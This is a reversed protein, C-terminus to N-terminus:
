NTLKKITKGEHWEADLLMQVSSTKGSFQTALSRLLSSIYKDLNIIYGSIDNNNTAIESFGSAMLSINDPISIHTSSLFSFLREIESSNDSFIASIDNISTTMEAYAKEITNNDDVIKYQDKNISLKNDYLFKFFCQELELQIDQNLRKKTIFGIKKHGNRVLRTLADQLIKVHNYDVFNIDNAASELGGAITYALDMNRITQITKTDPYSGLFLIGDANYQHLFSADVKESFFLINYEFGLQKNFRVLLEALFNFYYRHVTNKSLIDKEPLFVMVTANKKLPTERVYIGNGHRIQLKNSLQLNKIVRRITVESVGYITCLQKLTPLKDGPKYRKNKIDSVITNEIKETLTM